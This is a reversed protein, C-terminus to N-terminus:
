SHANGMQTKNSQQYRATLLDQQLVLLSDLNRSNCAHM